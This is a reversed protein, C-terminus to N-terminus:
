QIRYVIDDGGAVFGDATQDFRTELQRNPGASVVFVAARQGVGLTLTSEMAVGQQTLMQVNVFYRDDWPDSKPISAVYPGNWGKYRSWSIQGMRPYPIGVFNGTGIYGPQNTVLQNALLDRQEAGTTPNVAPPWNLSSAIIPDNGGSQLVLFIEDQPSHANGFKFAPAFGTDSMFSQISVALMQTDAVAQAVKADDIRNVGAVLAVSSIIAAIAIVLAAELLSTAVGRESKIIAVTRM